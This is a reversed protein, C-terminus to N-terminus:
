NSHFKEKAREFIGRLSGASFVEGFYQKSHKSVYEYTEQKTKKGEDYVSHLRVIIKPYLEEREIRTRHNNRSRKQKITVELEINPISYGNRGFWTKLEDRVTEWAIRNVRLMYSPENSHKKFHKSKTTYGSAILWKEMEDPELKEKPADGLKELEACTSIYQSKNLNYLAATKKGKRILEAIKDDTIKEDPGFIKQPNLDELCWWSHLKAIITRKGSVELDDYVRFM